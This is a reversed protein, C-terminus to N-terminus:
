LKDLRRDIRGNTQRHIGRERRGEKEEKTTLMEKKFFYHPLLGDSKLPRFFGFQPLFFIPFLFQRAQPSSSVVDVMIVDLMIVSLMIVSLMRTLTLLSVSLM